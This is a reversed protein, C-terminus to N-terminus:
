SRLNKENSKRKEDIRWSAGNIYAALRKAQAPNEERYSALKWDNRFM